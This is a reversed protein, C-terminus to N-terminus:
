QRRLPRHHQLYRRDRRLLNAISGLDYKVLRSFTEPRKTQRHMWLHNNIPPRLLDGLMEPAELFIKPDREM